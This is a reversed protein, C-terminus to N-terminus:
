TIHTFPPFFPGIYPSCLSQACLCSATASKSLENSLSKYIPRPANSLSAGPRAFVACRKEKSLEHLSSRLFTRLERLCQKDRDDTVILAAPAPAAPAAPALAPALPRRQRTIPGAAAAATATATATTLPVDDKVVCTANEVLSAVERPHKGHGHGHGGGGGGATTTDSGAGTAAAPAVRVKLQQADLRATLM